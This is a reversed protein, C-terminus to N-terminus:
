GRLLTRSPGTRTRVCRGGSDRNATSGWRLWSLSVTGNCRRGASRCTRWRLSRNPLSVPVLARCEDAVMGSVAPMDAMAWDIVDYTAQAADLDGVLVELELQNTLAIVEGLLYAAADAMAACDEPTAAASRSPPPAPAPRSPPPAPAPRSPPPAPAPAPEPAPAPAPAPTPAPTPPPASRSTAPPPNATSDDSEGLLAGLVIGVILLVVLLLVIIKVSRPIRRRQPTHPAPPPPLPPPSGESIPPPVPERAPLPPAPERAPPRPAPEEATPDNQSLKASSLISDRIHRMTEINKRRAARQILFLDVIAWIGVGGLTLLKAVGLGTNGIYFRDVGMAGFFLSFLLATTPNKRLAALQLDFQVRENDSLEQKAQAIQQLENAPSTM